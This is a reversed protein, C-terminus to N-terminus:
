TSQGGGQLVVEPQSHEFTGAGILHGKERRQKQREGLAGRRAGEPRHSSVSVTVRELCQVDRPSERHGAWM